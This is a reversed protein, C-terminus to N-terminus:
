EAARVSLAIDAGCISTEGNIDKLVIHKGNSYIIYGDGICYDLVGKKIVEVAGNENISVLEWSKPAVGPFKEGSSANERMTKEANILNGEIFLEKDSKKQIKTPNAGATKGTMSEGSYRQTFFNLFGGVAKLLKVPMLLIDGPTLASSDPTKGRRICYLKGDKEAPKIFDYKEDSLVEGLEGTSLNLRIIEYKGAGKYNGREDFSLGASAYYIIDPNDQSFAPWADVSDGETLIDFSSGDESFVAIHKDISDESVSAAIKKATQSYGIEHIKIGEKRIIYSEPDDKQAIDKTYLGGVTGLNASYILKEGSLCVSTVGAFQNEEGGALLFMGGMFPSNENKSKWEKKKEIERVNRKYKKVAESSFAEPKGGSVARFIDGGSIYFVEKL